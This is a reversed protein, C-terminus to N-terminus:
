QNCCDVLRDANQIRIWGPLNDLFTKFAKLGVGNPLKGPESKPRRRAKGSPVHGGSSRSPPYLYLCNDKPM